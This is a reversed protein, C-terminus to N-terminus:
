KLTSTALYNIFSQKAEDNLLHTLSIAQETLDQTLPTTNSYPLHHNSFFCLQKTKDLDIINSIGIKIVKENLANIDLDLLYRIANSANSPNIFHELNQM